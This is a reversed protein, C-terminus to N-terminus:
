PTRISPSWVAPPAVKPLTNKWRAASGLGELPSSWCTAVQSSSEMSTVLDGKELRIGTVGSASRGMPRVQDESIRLAQGKETVLVIEDAGHTLRVWGLRDGKELGIAIVGAPRVSAFESLSLRKLRGRRTAMVCYEAANFDPVPVAATITEGADLALVNVIPIGRGTRDADPIQYTKESYVKGRDSFFLVTDLTRAPFLYLVEDEDKTTHGTVGRGGRSQARIAKAAVRKIYGRQTISILV